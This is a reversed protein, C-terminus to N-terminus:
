AEVTKYHLLQKMKSTDLMGIYNLRYPSIKEFTGTHRNFIETSGGQADVYFKSKTGNDTTTAVKFRITHMGIEKYQCEFLDDSGASKALLQKDYRDM